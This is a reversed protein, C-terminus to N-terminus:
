SKLIELAQACRLTDAAIAQECHDTQLWNLFGGLLRAWRPPNPKRLALGTMSSITIDYDRWIWSCLLIDVGRLIVLFYANSYGSNM